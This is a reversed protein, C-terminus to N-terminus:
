LYTEMPLLYIKTVIICLGYSSINRILMVRYTIEVARDLDVGTAQEDDRQFNINTDSLLARGQITPVLVCEESVVNVTKDFTLIEVNAQGFNYLGCGRSLVDNIMSYFYYFM